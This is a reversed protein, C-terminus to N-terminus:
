RFFLNQSLLFDNKDALVLEERSIFMQFRRKTSFKHFCRKKMNKILSHMDKIYMIVFPRKKAKATLILPDITVYIM